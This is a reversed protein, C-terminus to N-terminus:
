GAKTGSVGQTGFHWLRLGTGFRPIALFFFVTLLCTALTAGTMKGVLRGDLRFGRGAGRACSELVYYLLAYPGVFLYLILFFAFGVGEYITSCGAIVMLTCLLSFAQDRPNRRKFLRLIQMAILFRLFSDLISTSFVEFPRYSLCAAIFLFLALQREKRGNIPFVKKGLSYYLGIGYAVLAAGCFFYNGRIAFYCLIGSIAFFHFAFQM